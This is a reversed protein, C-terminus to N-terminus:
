QSELVVDTSTALEAALDRLIRNTEAARAHRPEIRAM